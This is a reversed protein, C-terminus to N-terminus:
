SRMKKVETIPLCIPISFKVRNENISSKHGETRGGVGLIKITAKGEVADIAHESASVAIDMEIIQVRRSLGVKDLESDKM